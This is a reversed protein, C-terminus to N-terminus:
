WFARGGGCGANAHGPEVARGIVASDTGDIRVASSARVDLATGSVRGGQGQGSLGVDSRAHAIGTVEFAPGCTHLTRRVAITRIFDLHVTRGVRGRDGPLVRNGLAETVLVKGLVGIILAHEAVGVNDTVTNLSGDNVTDLNHRGSGDIDATSIAGVYM